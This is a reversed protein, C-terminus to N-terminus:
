KTNNELKKIIAEIKARLEDPIKDWYLLGQLTGLYEGEIRSKESLLKLYKVNEADQVKAGFKLIVKLLTPYSRRFSRESYSIMGKKAIKNFLEIM